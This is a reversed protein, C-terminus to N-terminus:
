RIRDRNLQREHLRGANGRTAVWRGRSSLNPYTHYDRTGPSSPVLEVQDIRITLLPLLAQQAM